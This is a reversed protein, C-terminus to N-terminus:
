GGFMWGVAGYVIHCEIAGIHAIYMGNIRKNMWDTWNLQKREKKESVRNAKIYHTIQWWWWWWTSFNNNNTITDSCNDLQRQLLLLFDTSIITWCNCTRKSHDVTPLPEHRRLCNGCVCVCVCDCCSEKQM